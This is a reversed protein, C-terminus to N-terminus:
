YWRRHISIIEESNRIEYISYKMFHSPKGSVSEDHSGSFFKSQSSIKALNSLLRTRAIRPLSNRKGDDIHSYLLYVSSM